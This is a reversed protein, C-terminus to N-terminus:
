RRKTPKPTRRGMNHAVPEGKAVKILSVLMTECFWAKEGDKYPPMGVLEVEAYLYPDSAPSGIHHEIDTLIQAKRHDDGIMAEIREVVKHDYKYHVTIHAFYETNTYKKIDM